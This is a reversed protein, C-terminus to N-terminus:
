NMSYRGAVFEAMRLMLSASHASDATQEQSDSELRKNGVVLPRSGVTTAIEGRDGKVMLRDGKLGDGKVQSMAAKLWERVKMFIKKM